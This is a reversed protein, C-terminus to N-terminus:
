FHPDRTCAHECTYCPTLDQSPRTVQGPHIGVERDRERHSSPISGLARIVRLYSHCNLLLPLSVFVLLFYDPGTLNLCTIEM